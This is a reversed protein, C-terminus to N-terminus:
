LHAIDCIGQKQLIELCKKLIIATSMADFLARHRDIKPLNIEIDFYDILSDLSYSSLGKIAKKAIKITDLTQQFSTTLSCCIAENEIFRIDFNVNHGVIVTDQSFSLLSPLVEHILPKDKVMEYSIKHIKYANYPIDVEPNILSSFTNDFDINYSPYVKVAAIEVLKAYKPSYGTTETDIVTYTLQNFPTNKM